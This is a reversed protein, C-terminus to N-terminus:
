NKPKRIEYALPKSLLLITYRFFDFKNNFALHKLTRQKATMWAADAQFYWFLVRRHNVFLM